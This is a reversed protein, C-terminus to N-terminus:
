LGVLAQVVFVASLPQVLEAVVVHAAEEVLVVEGAVEDVQVEEGFWRRIEHAVELLAGEAIDELALDAPLEIRPEFTAVEESDELYKIRMHLAALLWFGEIKHQLVIDVGLAVIVPEVEGYPCLFGLHKGEAKDVEYRNPHNLDLV